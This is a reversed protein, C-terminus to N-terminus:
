ENTVLMLIPEEKGSPSSCSTRNLYKATLPSTVDIGDHTAEMHFKYVRRKFPSLPSTM